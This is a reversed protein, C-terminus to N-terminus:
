CRTPVCAARATATDLNMEPRSLFYALPTTLDSELPVRQGASWRTHREGAPRVTRPLVPQPRRDPRNASRDELDPSPLGHGPFEPRRSLIEGRGARRSLQAAVAILPVGLGHTLYLNKLGNVKYDSVFEFREFDQPQWRSGQLVCNIDWAGSATNITKTTDPVLEKTACVIRLRRNSAGNYLDCAGRYQPDYQNRRPPSAPTSCTTTPTCSRSATSTWAGGQPRAARNEQRRPLGARVHRM